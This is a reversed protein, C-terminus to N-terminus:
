TEINEKEESLDELCDKCVFRGDELKVLDKTLKESSCISCPKIYKNYGSDKCM